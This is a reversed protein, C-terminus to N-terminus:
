GGCGRVGENARKSIKQIRNEGGPKESVSDSIPFWWRLVVRLASRHRRSALFPRSERAEPLSRSRPLPRGLNSSPRLLRGLDTCIGM